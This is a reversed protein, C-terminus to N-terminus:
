SDSKAYQVEAQLKKALSTQKARPYSDIVMQYANGAESFMGAEAYVRGAAMYYGPSSFDNAAIEAAKMYYDGAQALNGQDEYCQAAGAYAAGLLLPENGYENIYKEYYVMASDKEDRDFYIRALYYCTKDAIPASSYEEILMQYDNIALAQQGMASALQGKGFLDESEAIKKNHSYNFFSILLIIAILGAFGGLFYSKNKQIYESAKFASTVFNDQKIQKKSLREASM